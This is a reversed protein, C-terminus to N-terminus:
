SCQDPLPLRYIKRLINKKPRGAVRHIPLSQFHLITQQCRQFIKRRNQSHVTRFHSRLPPTRHSRKRRLLRPKHLRRDYRQLIRPGCRTRNQPYQTRPTKTDMTRRGRTRPLHARSYQRGYRPRRHLRTERYQSRSLHNPTRTRYKRPRIRGRRREFTRTRTRLLRCDM